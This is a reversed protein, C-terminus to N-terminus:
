KNQLKELVILLPSALFISSYTGAAVGVILTLIFTQITTGGFFYIALLVLLTTVSTNISRTLTESVSIGVTEPFHSSRGRRHINERVRDFVVITDNVSYGLVTLLAAVFPLGIEVGSVRGLLAFVGLTILIDHFLAILAILGYKWSPLPHSVGRFAWAIYLVIGALVMVISWLATQKLEQGIAPGISDFRKEELKYTSQLHNALMHHEEESLTKMRIIYGEGVAEQLVVNTQVGSEAIATEIEQKSPTIGETFGVEMLSGGTFDIGLNLGWMGLAVISLAVLLLSFGFWLKRLRVILM